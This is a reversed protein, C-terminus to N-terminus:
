QEEKPYVAALVDELAVLERGRCHRRCVPWHTDDFAETGVAVAVAPKDCPEANGGRSVEACCKDPFKRVFHFRDASMRGEQAVVVSAASM